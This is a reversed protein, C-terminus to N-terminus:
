FNLSSAYISRSNSSVAFADPNREKLNDEHLGDYNLLEVSAPCVMEEIRQLGLYNKLLLKKLSTAASERVQTHFSVFLIWYYNINSAFRTEINQFRTKICLIQTSFVFVFSFRSDFERFLNFLLDFVWWKKKM